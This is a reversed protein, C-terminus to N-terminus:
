PRTRPPRVRLLRAVDGLTMPPGLRQARGPPILVPRVATIFRASVGPDREFGVEPGHHWSEAGTYRTGGPVGDLVVVFGHVGGYLREHREVLAASRDYLAKQLRRRRGALRDDERRMADGGPDLEDFPPPERRRSREELDEELAALARSKAVFGTESQAMRLHDIASGSVEDAGNEGFFVLHDRPDGSFYNGRGVIRGTRLIDVMEPPSVGRYLTGTDERREVPNPRRAPGPAMSPRGRLLAMAEALDTASRPEPPM